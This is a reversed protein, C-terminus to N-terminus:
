RISQNSNQDILINQPKIDRHLIKHSHIFAIGKLIQFMISRTTDSNIKENPQISDIFKRLDKDIYEFILYLKTELPVIDLLKVINKHDLEKLIVIERLATSPIGELQSKKFKSRLSNKKFCDM